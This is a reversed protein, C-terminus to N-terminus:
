LDDDFNVDDTFTVFMTSEGDINTINTDFDLPKDCSQGCYM